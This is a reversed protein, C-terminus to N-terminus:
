YSQPKPHPTRSPRNLAAKGPTAPRGTGRLLRVPYRCPQVGRRRPRDAYAGVAPNIGGIPQRSPKPKFLNWLENRLKNFGFPSQLRLVPLRESAIDTGGLLCSRFLTTYPFLTDTRTSRPPRRIM